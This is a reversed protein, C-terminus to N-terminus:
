HLQKEVDLKFLKLQDWEDFMDEFHDAWGEQDVMIKSSTAEWQDAIGKVWVSLSPDANTERLFAENVQNMAASHCENYTADYYEANEFFLCYENHASLFRNVNKLDKVSRKYFSNVLKENKYKSYKPLTEKKSILDEKFDYLTLYNSSEKISLTPSSVRQFRPQRRRLTSNFSESRHVAQLDHVAPAVWSKSTKAFQGFFDELDNRM